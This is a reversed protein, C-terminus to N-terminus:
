ILTPDKVTSQSGPGILRAVEAKIESEFRTLDSLEVLVQVLIFSEPNYNIILYSNM